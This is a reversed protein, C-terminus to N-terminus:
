FFKRGFSISNTLFAFFFQSLDTDQFLKSSGPGFRFLATLLMRNELVLMSTTIESFSVLTASDSFPDPLIAALIRPFSGVGTGGAKLVLNSVLLPPAKFGASLKM